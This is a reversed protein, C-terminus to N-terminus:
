DRGDIEPLKEVFYGVIREENIWFAPYSRSWIVNYKVLPIDMYEKIILSVEIIRGQKTEQRGEHFFTVNDNVNYKTTCLMM